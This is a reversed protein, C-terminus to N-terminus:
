NRGFSPLAAGTAKLVTAILAYASSKMIEFKGSKDIKDV